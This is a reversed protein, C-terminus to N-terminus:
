HSESLATRTKEAEPPACLLTLHNQSEPPGISIGYKGVHIRQLRNYNSFSKKWWPVRVNLPMSSM